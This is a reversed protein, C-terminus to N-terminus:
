TEFDGFFRVFTFSKPGMKQSPRGRSKQPLNASRGGKPLTQNLETQQDMIVTQSAQCHILTRFKCLTPLFSFFRLEHRKSVVYSVGELQWRVQRIIYIM